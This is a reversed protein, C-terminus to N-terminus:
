QGFVVSTNAHRPPIQAEIASIRAEFLDRLEVRLDKIAALVDSMRTLPDPPAEAPPTAAVPATEPAATTPEPTVSPSATEDPM